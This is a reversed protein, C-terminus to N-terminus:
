GDEPQLRTIVASVARKSLNRMHWDGAPDLGFITAVTERKEEDSQAGADGLVVWMKRKQADSPPDGEFPYFTLTPPEPRLAPPPEPPTAQWMRQDDDSARQRGRTVPKTQAMAEREAAPTRRQQAAQQAHQADDDDDGALGVISALHYRRAYTLASGVEHPSRGVAM